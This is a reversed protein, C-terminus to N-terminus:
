VRRWFSVAISTLSNGNRKTRKELSRRRILSFLSFLISVSETKVLGSNEPTNNRAQPHRDGKVIVSFFSVGHINSVYELLEAREADDATNQGDNGRNQGIHKDDGFVTTLIEISKALEQVIGEMELVQDHLLDQLSQVNEKRGVHDDETEEHKKGCRLVETADAVPQAAVSDHNHNQTGNHDPKHISSSIIATRSSFFTIEM